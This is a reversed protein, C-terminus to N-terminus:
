TNLYMSEALCLCIFNKKRKLINNFKSLLIILSGICVNVYGFMYNNIINM